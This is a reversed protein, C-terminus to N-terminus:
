NKWLEHLKNLNKETLEIETKDASILYLDAEYEEENNIEIWGTVCLKTNTTAFLIKTYDNIFNSDFREQVLFLSEGKIDHKICIEGLVINALTYVFIAPSPIEYITKEYITDTHLSSSKNTAILSIENSLITSRDVDTLIIEAALFGLKSLADMKYFKSYNVDFSQYAAKAFVPFVESKDQEFIKEQNLYITNEAIYIHKQIFLDTM